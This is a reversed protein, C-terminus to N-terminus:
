FSLSEGRGLYQDPAEGGGGGGCVCGPATYGVSEQTKGATDMLLNM